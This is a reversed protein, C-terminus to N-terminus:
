RFEMSKIHNMFHELYKHLHPEIVEAPEYKVTKHILTAFCFIGAERVDSSVSNDLSLLEEMELLLKKSPVKVHMPLNGLMMIAAWNPVSKTRVVDRTFLCAALTGVNPM